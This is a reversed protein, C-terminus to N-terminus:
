PATLTYTATGTFTGAPVIGPNSYTFLLCSESWTNRAVTALTLLTSSFSGAAIESNYPATGPSTWAITSFPITANASSLSVPTSVTLTASGAAGTSRFFSGIYVKGAPTCYAAGDIPSATVNSDTSMTQAGGTFLAAAPVTVTVNNQTANNGATNVNGTTMNGVGVQLYLSRSASSISVTYAHAPVLACLAAALCAVPRLQEFSPRRSKM